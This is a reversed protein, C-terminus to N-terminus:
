LAESNLSLLKQASLCALEDTSVLPCGVTRLKVWYIVADTAHRLLAHISYWDAICVLQPLTKNRCPQIEVSCPAHHLHDTALFVPLKYGHLLHDSQVNATVNRAVCEIQWVDCGTRKLAM